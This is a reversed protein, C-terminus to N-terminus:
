TRGVPRAPTGHPSRGADPGAPGLGPGARLPGVRSSSPLLARGPAPLPFSVLFLPHSLLLSPQFAPPTRCNWGDGARRSGVPAPHQLAPSFTSPASKCRTSPRSSLALRNAQFSVLFATCFWVIHTALFISQITRSAPDSVTGTRFLRGLRYRTPRSVQVRRRPARRSGAQRAAWGIRRGM